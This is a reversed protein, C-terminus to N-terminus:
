WHVTVIGDRRARGTTALQDVTVALAADHLVFATGPFPQHDAPEPRTNITSAGIDMHWEEDSYRPARKNMM